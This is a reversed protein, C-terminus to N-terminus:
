RHAPSGGHSGGSGVRRPGGRRHQPGDPPAHEPLQVPSMSMARMAGAAYGNARWEGGGRASQQQFGLGPGHGPAPGFPNYRRQQHTM